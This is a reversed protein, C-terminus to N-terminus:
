EVGLGRDVRGDQWGFGSGIARPARGVGRNGEGRGDGIGQRSQVIRAFFPKARVRAFFRSNLFTSPNTPPRRLSRLDALSVKSRAPTKAKRSRRALFRSKRRRNM